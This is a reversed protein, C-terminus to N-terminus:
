NIYNQTKSLEVNKIITKFAHLGNYDHSIDRLINYNDSDDSWGNEYGLNIVTKEM